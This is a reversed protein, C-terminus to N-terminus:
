EFLKMGDEVSLGNVSHAFANSHPAQLANGIITYVGAGYVTFYEGEVIGKRLLLLVRQGHLLLPDGELQQLEGGKNNWAPGGVQRILIEENPQGRTARSVKVVALSESLDGAPSSYEVRVVVGEIVLETQARAETITTAGPSYTELDVLPLSRPDRKSAVFDSVWRANKAKFAAINAFRQEDSLGADPNAEYKAGGPANPAEPGRAWAVMAGAFIGLALPAVLVSRRVLLRRLSFKTTM